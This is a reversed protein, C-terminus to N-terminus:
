QHVYVEPYGPIRTLTKRSQSVMYHQPLISVNQLVMSGGDEPHLHFCLGWFHKYGVVNSCLMVVWLVEVQNKMAM